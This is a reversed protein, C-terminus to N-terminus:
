QVPRYVTIRRDVYAVPVSPGVARYDEPFQLGIPKLSANLVETSLGNRAGEPGPMYVAIWMTRLDDETLRSLAWTLFDNSGDYGSLIWPMSPVRFDGMWNLGPARGSLDLLVPRGDQRAEKWQRTERLAAMARYTEAIPPTVRWVEGGAQVRETAASLPELMRYPKSAALDLASFTLGAGLLVTIAMATHRGRELALAVLFLAAISAGTFITAHSIIRSATGLSLGYPACGFLTAFLALRLDRGPALWVLLSAGLGFVWVRQAMNDFDNVYEVVLACTGLLALVTLIMPMWRQRDYLRTQALGLCLLPLMLMLPEGFLYEAFQALTDFLEVILKGLSVDHSALIAATEFGTTLREWLISLPLTAASLLLASVLGGMIVCSAVLVLAGFVRGAPLRAQWLAALAFLPLAMVVFAVGSSIKLFLLCFLAAGLALGGGIAATVRGSTAASWLAWLAASAIFVVPLVLGNYNPDMLLWKYYASNGAMAALLGALLLPWPEGQRRAGLIAPVLLALPAAFIFILTALRITQLSADGAFAAVLPGFGTLNSAIEAYETHMLVYFASDSLEPGLDIAGWLFFLAWGLAGAALALSLWPVLDALVGMARTAVRISAAKAPLTSPATM